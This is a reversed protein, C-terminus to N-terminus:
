LKRLARRRRAQPSSIKRYVSDSLFGAATELDLGAAQEINEIDALEHLDELRRALRDV